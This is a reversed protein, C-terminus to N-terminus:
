EGLIIKEVEQKANQIGQVAEQQLHKAKKRIQEIHLAIEKQKELPPLPIKTKMIYTESINPQAGGVSNRLIVSQFIDTNLLNMLYYTNIEKSRIIGNRQNLLSKEDSEFIGVKGITAGTMAILLDNKNIRLNKYGEIELSLLKM